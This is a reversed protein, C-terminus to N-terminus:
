WTLAQIKNIVEMDDLKKESQAQTFLMLMQNLKISIPGSTPRPYTMGPIADSLIQRIDRIEAISSDDLNSKCRRVLTAAKVMLDMVERDNIPRHSSVPIVVTEVGTEKSYLFQLQQSVHSKLVDESDISIGSRGNITQLKAGHKEILTRAKTMSCAAVPKTMDSSLYVPIHRISSFAM